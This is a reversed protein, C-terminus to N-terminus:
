FFFYPSSNDVYFHHEKGQYDRTLCVVVAGMEKLPTRENANSEKRLYVEVNTLYSNNADTLVSLKIGWPVPTSSIRQKFLM